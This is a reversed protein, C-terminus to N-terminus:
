RLSPRAKPATDGYTHAPKKDRYKADDLNMPDPTHVNSNYQGSAEFGSRGDGTKAGTTNTANGRTAGTNAGGSSSSESGTATGTGTGSTGTGSTGGTADTGSMDGTGTASGETTTNDMPAVTATSDTTTSTEEKSDGCSLLAFVSLAMLGYKMTKM